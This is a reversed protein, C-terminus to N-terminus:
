LIAFSFNSNDVDCFIPVAKSRVIASLCSIITHSPVIVEDGDNLNLLQFYQLLFFVFVWTVLPLVITCFRCLLQPRFVNKKNITM